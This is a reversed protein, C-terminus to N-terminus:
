VHSMVDRLGTVPLFGTKVIRNGTKSFFPKLTLYVTYIDFM